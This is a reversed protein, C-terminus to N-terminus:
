GPGFRMIVRLVVPMREPRAAREYEGLEGLDRGVVERYLFVLANLAQNQTSAAVGQGLVLVGLFGNVEATGM